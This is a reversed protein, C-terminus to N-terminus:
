VDQASQLERVPHIYVHLKMVSSRANGSGKQLFSESYIDDAVSTIITEKAM